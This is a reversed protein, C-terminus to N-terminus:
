GTDPRGYGVDICSHDVTGAASVMAFREELRAGNHLQPVQACCIVRSTTHLAFLRWVCFLLQCNPSGRTSSVKRKRNSNGSRTM